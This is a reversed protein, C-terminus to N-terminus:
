TYRAFLANIHKDGDKKALSNPYNINFHSYAENLINWSFRLEKALGSSNASGCSIRICADHSTEEWLTLIITFFEANSGPPFKVNNTTLTQSNVNNSTNKWINNFPYLPTISFTINRIVDHEVNFYIDDAIGRGANFCSIVFKLEVTNGSKTSTASKEFTSKRVQLGLDPHPRSGFLGALVSRPTPSFNSGARIYFEPKPFLAQIPVNMGIPVYTVVFGSPESPSVAALNEVGQHAPLTLGGVASDLLTKFYIPQTIRKPPSV